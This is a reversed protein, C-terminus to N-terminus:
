PNGNKDTWQKSQFTDTTDVGRCTAFKKRSKM